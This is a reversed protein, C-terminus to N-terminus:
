RGLLRRARARSVNWSLLDISPAPREALARALSPPLEARRALLTPLADDSLSALYAADVHPRALNVRAILADPDLVNLALTAAFGLAVAGVAFRGRERLTTLCLWLFVAALWVVVGTAYIRLETLGYREQYLWLRDIAAAAVALELAILVASLVRVIRSPALGNAALLVPLVLVSVAVLEFFGHRAYEAYGVHAIAERSQVAVFVAFLSVL